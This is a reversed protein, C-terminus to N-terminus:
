LRYSWATTQLTEVGLVLAGRFANTAKADVGNPKQGPEPVSDRRMNDRQTGRHALLMDGAKDCVSM